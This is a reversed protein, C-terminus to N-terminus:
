MKKLVYLAIVFFFFTNSVRLYGGPTLNLISFPFLANLFGLLLSLVALGFLIWGATKM